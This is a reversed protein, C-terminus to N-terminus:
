NLLVRKDMESFRDMIRDAVGMNHKFEVHDLVADVVEAAETCCLAGQEPHSTDGCFPCVLVSAKGECILLVQRELEM